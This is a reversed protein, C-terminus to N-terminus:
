RLSQKGSFGLDGNKSNDEFYNSNSAEDIGLTILITRQIDRLQELAGVMPITVGPCSLRM